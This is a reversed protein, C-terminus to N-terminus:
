TASTDMILGFSKPIPCSSASVFSSLYLRLRTKQLKQLISNLFRNIMHPGQYPYKIVLLIIVLTLKFTKHNKAYSVKRVKRKVVINFDDMEHCDCKVHLSWNHTPSLM